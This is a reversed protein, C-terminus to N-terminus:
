DGLYIDPLDDDEDDMDLPSSPQPSSASILNSSENTQPIPLPESAKPANPAKPKMVIKPESTPLPEVAQPFSNAVSSTIHPVATGQQQLSSSQDLPISEARKEEDIFYKRTRSEVVVASPDVSRHSAILPPHRLLQLTHRLELVAALISPGVHATPLVQGHLQMDSPGLLHTPLQLMGRHAAAYTENILSSACSLMDLDVPRILKLLTDLMLICETKWESPIRWRLRQVRNQQPSQLATTQLANAARQVDDTETDKSPLMGDEVIEHLFRFAFQRLSNSELGEGSAALMLRLARLKRETREMAVGFRDGDPFAKSPQEPPLSLLFTETIVPQVICPCDLLLVGPERLLFDVIEQVMNATGIGYYVTVFACVEWVEASSLLSSAILTLLRRTIENLAPLVQLGSGCVIQTLDKLHVSLMAGLIEGKREAESESNKLSSPSSEFRLRKTSASSVFSSGEDIVNDIGSFASEFLNGVTVNQFIREKPKANGGKKKDRKSASM